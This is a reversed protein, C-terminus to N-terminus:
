ERGIILVARDDRLPACVAGVYLPFHEKGNMMRRGIEEFIANGVEQSTRCGGIMSKMDRQGSIDAVIGRMSIEIALNKAIGETTLILSGGKQLKGKATEIMSEPVAAEHSIIVSSATQRNELYCELSGGAAKKRVTKMETGSRFGEDLMNYHDYKLLRRPQMGIEFVSSDGVSAVNYIWSRSVVAITAASGGSVSPSAPCIRRVKEIAKMLLQRATLTSKSSRFHEECMSSITEATKESFYKGVEEGYWDFVGAIVRRDDVFVMVTDRCHNRGEDKGIRAYVSGGDWSHHFEADNESVNIPLIAKPEELVPSTRPFTSPRANHAKTIGNPPRESTAQGAM